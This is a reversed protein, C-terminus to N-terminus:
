DESGVSWLHPQAAALSDRPIPSKAERGKSAESKPHRFQRTVSGARSLGQPLVKHAVGLQGSMDASGKSSQLRLQGDAAM